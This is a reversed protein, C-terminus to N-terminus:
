SCHAGHAVHSQPAGKQSLANTIQDKEVGLAAGAAVLIQDRISPSAHNVFSTKGGGLNIEIRDQATSQAWGGLDKTPSEGDVGFLWISDTKQALAIESAFDHYLDFPMVIKSSIQLLALLVEQSVREEIVALSCRDTGLGFMKFEDSSCTILAASANPDALIAQTRRPLSADQNEGWFQVDDSCSVNPEMLALLGIKLNKYHEAKTVVCVTPIRGNCENLFFPDIQAFTVEDQSILGPTVNVECIAGGTEKPSLSIDSTIYDVGAVDIGLLAAAKVGLDLVEPHALETVLEAPAGNHRNSNGSVVVIQGDAPISSPTLGQRALIEVAQDDLTIRFGATLGDKRDLNNQNVLESVTLEGDGTVSAPLTRMVRVCCGRVILLRHNHGFIQQEVIVQGWQAAYQFAKYVHESNLNDVTVGRGFDTAAPKVVVPYGFSEAASVASQADAVAVNRPAPLGAERLLRSTIDKRTSLTTAIYSTDQTFNKWFVHRKVGHGLALFPRESAAVVSLPIGRASAAKALPTTWSKLAQLLRKALKDSESDPRGTLLNIALAAAAQGTARDACSFVAVSEDSSVELWGPVASRYFGALKQVIDALRSVQGVFTSPEQCASVKVSNTLDKDVRSHHKASAEAAEFDASSVPATKDPLHLVACYGSFYLNGSALFRIKPAPKTSM